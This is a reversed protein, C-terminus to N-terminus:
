MVYVVYACASKKRSIKSNCYTCVLTSLAALAWPLLISNGKHHLWAAIWVGNMGTVSAVLEMQERDGSIAGAENTERNLGTQNFESGNLRHSEGNSLWNSLSFPISKKHLLHYYNRNVRTEHQRQLILRVAEHSAALAFVTIFNIFHKIFLHM